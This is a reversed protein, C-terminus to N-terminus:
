HTNHADLQLKIIQEYVEKIFARAEGLEPANLLDKQLAENVWRPGHNGISKDFMELEGVPVIYIGINKLNENLRIFAATADGKPIGAKGTEKLKSWPSSRKMIKTIEHISSTPFREKTVQQVVENIERKVDDSRLELKSSEVQSFIIKWDNQFLAWDGNKSGVINKIHTENNLIDLDVIISLPVNLGVLSSITQPMRQKGGCHIYLVDSQKVDEENFLISDAVAQYFRCDSDSECLIVHEHFLGSLTNSYRLLPDSWLERIASNDLESICNTNGQREIRIVRVRSKDIDLLGHLVDRSHTAIFLQRQDDAKEGLMKGLLRAQPPHLFAEPEDILTVSYNSLLVNLILATFSKMGDGQVDLPDLKEVAEIYEISVRDKGEPPIPRTGVYLPIKNGANRHVIIDKGFAIKFYRSAEIEVNDNRHLNHIPNSPAQSTFSINPAPKVGNLRDEVALRKCFVPALNALGKRANLGWVGKCSASNIQYGYGVYQTLNPHKAPGDKILSQKQLWNWMDMEDCGTTQCNIDIIVNATNENNVFKKEIDKLAQSKGSNNPGVFVVIDNPNLTIISDDSFTINEVYAHPKM